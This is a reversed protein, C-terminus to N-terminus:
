RGGRHCRSRTCPSPASISGSGSSLSAGAMRPLMAPSGDARGCARLAAVSAAMRQHCARGSIAGDAMAAGAVIRIAPRLQWLGQWQWSALGISGNRAAMAWMAAMTATRRMASLPHCACQSPLCPSRGDYSGSGGIAARTAPHCAPQTDYTSRCSTPTMTQWEGGGVPSPRAM